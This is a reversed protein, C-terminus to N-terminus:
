GSTQRNRSRSGCSASMWVRSAPLVGCRLAKSCGCRESGTCRRTAPSRGPQQGCGADRTDPGAAIVDTPMAMYDVTAM